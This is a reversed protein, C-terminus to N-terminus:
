ELGSWCGSIVLLALDRESFDRCFSEHLQETHTDKTKIRCGCLGSAVSGIHLLSLPDWKLHSGHTFSVVSAMELSQPSQWISFDLCIGTTSWGGTTQPEWEEQSVPIAGRLFWNYCYSPWHLAHSEDQM